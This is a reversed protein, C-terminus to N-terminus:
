LSTHAKSASRVLRIVKPQDGRGTFANQILGVRRLIFARMITEGLVAEQVMLDRLRHTAIVIADVGTQAVGEVLAPSGSLASLEALFSGPGYTTIPKHDGVADRETIAVEGTLIVFMGLPTKDTKQLYEGQVYSRVEGFRRLREIDAAELRPFMQDRRTESIPRTGSAM